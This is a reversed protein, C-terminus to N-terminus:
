AFLAEDLASEDGSQVRKGHAMAMPLLNAVYFKLNALKAQRHPTAGEAAMIRKAARAQNLCELGLHVNGMMQLFPYAQLLAADLKGQMGIAGLHMAAAGTANVVKELAEAEAVFGEGKALACEKLGDQMWDMFLQGGKQRLKRGLLDLAQIGNTGEYISMIKGDRVLQEVPYEGIFGYGGLVQVATTANEFGLDTCYAKLIPVLLDVRELYRQRKAEDGVGSEAVDNRHALRYLMSRMAETTVKMTMLMRKVDPHAVIPVRPAAPDRLNAASSGQLRDQAYKKAYQYATSSISVGQAGVGIRAENMMHFMIKIGEHEEGLLWGKCPQKTGLELVCTPSGHIGMKHEIKSVFVGNREGLNLDADFLFKPVLFLSLGKTGAPSDPTRALVLHVIQDTLDHDGGSIFIKEGTLHFSGDGQPIAKCRNEGVDSGAGAETLCMTGAWEGAFMKKAVDERKGAPGYGAVVRAAAMTLGPFMEFAMAAGIHMEVVAMNVIMPMGAGGLEPPTSVSMWGGGAVAAWADKFGTPTKVNGKGDFTCGERDGVINVPALVEKAVRAAEDLTAEYTMRDFDAYKPIDKYEDQVQLQDFLVFKIDELDIDFSLAGM